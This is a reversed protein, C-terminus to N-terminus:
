HSTIVRQINLHPQRQLEPKGIRNWTSATPRGDVCQQDGMSWSFIHNRSSHFSFFIVRIYIRCYVNKTKQIGALIVQIAIFIDSEPQSTWAIIVSVVHLAINVTQFVLWLHALCKSPISANVCLLIGLFFTILSSVLALVLVLLLRLPPHLDFQTIAFLKCTTTINNGYYHETEHFTGNGDMTVNAVAAALSEIQMFTDGFNTHSLFCVILLIAFFM